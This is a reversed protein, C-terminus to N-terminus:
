SDMQLRISLHRWREIVHDGLLENSRSLWAESSAWADAADEATVEAAMPSRELMSRAVDIIQDDTMEAYRPSQQAMGERWRSRAAPDNIVRTLHARFREAQEARGGVDARKRAFDDVEMRLARVLFDEAAGADILAEVRARLGRVFHIRAAEDRGTPPSCAVNVAILAGYDSWWLPERAPSQDILFVLRDLLENDAGTVPGFHDTTM